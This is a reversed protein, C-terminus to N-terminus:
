RRVERTATLVESRLQQIEHRAHEAQRKWENGVVCGDPCEPMPLPRHRITAALDADHDRVETIILRALRRANRAGHQELAQAVRDALTV